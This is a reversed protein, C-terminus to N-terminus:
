MIISKLMILGRKADLMIGLMIQYFKKCLELMINFHFVFICVEDHVYTIINKNQKKHNYCMMLAYHEM